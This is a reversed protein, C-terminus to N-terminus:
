VQVPGGIVPADGNAQIVYQVVPRLTGDKRRAADSTAQSMRPRTAKCSERWIKEDYIQLFDGSGSIVVDSEIGCEGWLEEGLKLRGQKDWETEGTFMLQYHKLRREDEIDDDLKDIKAIYADYVPRPMLKITNDPSLGYGVFSGDGSYEKRWVSLFRAPIAVRGKDDVTM